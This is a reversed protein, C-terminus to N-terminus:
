LHRSAENSLRALTQQKNAHCGQMDVPNEGNSTSYQSVPLHYLDPYKIYCQKCSFVQSCCCKVIKSTADAQCSSTTGCHLIRNEMAWSLPCTSRRLLVVFM